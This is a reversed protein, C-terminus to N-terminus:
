FPVSVSVKAAEQRETRLDGARAAAVLAGVALRADAVVAAGGREPETQNAAASTVAMLPAARELERLLSKKQKPDLFSQVTAFIISKDEIPQPEKMKSLELRLNALPQRYTALIDVM